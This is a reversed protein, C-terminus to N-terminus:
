KYHFKLEKKLNSEAHAKALIHTKFGSTTLRFKENDYYYYEWYGCDMNYDIFVIM